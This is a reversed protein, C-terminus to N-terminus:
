LDGKNIHTIVMKKLDTGAQFTPVVRPPIHVPTNTHPNRGIRAAREKAKFTGFGAFQVDKRESLSVAIINLTSNIVTEVTKCPLNTAQSVSKVVNDKILKTQKM